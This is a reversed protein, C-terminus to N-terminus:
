RSFATSDDFSSLPSLNAISGPATTVSDFTGSPRGDRSRPKFDYPGNRLSIRGWHNTRGGLMRPRWWWFQREAEAHRQRGELAARLKQQRKRAQRWV